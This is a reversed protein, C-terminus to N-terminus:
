HADGASHYQASDPLFDEESAQEAADQDSPEAEEPPVQQLGHEEENWM